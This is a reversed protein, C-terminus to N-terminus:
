VLRFGEKQAALNLRQDLCVFETSNSGPKCISLAAALQMADQTRLAHVRLLRKAINRVEDTPEIENWGIQLEKLTNFTEQLLSGTLKGERELRSLASACEISTGWWTLIRSDTNYLDRVKESTSENV